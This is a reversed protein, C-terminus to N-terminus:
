AANGVGGRKKPMHPGGGGRDRLTVHVRVQGRIINVVLRIRAFPLMPVIGNYAGYAVSTPDTVVWTAMPEPIPSNDYTTWHLGDGSHDLYAEVSGASPDEVDQVELMIAIEDFAGLRADFRDSSTPAPTTGLYVVDDFAIFSDRIM